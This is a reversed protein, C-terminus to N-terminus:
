TGGGEGRASVGSAAPLDELPHLTLGPPAQGTGLAGAPQGGREFRVRTLELSRRGRAIVFHKPLDGDEGGGREVRLGAPTTGTLLADVADEISVPLGVLGEIARPGAPGAYATAAAVDVVCASGRGADLVFRVGGVPSLLEAHLRDPTEAWLLVRV